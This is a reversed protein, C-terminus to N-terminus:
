FSKVAIITSSVTKKEAENWGMNKINMTKGDFYGANKDISNFPWSLIYKDSDKNVTMRYGYGCLVDRKIMYYVILTDKSAKVVDLYFEQYNKKNVGGPVYLTDKDEIYTTINYRGAIMSADSDIKQECSFLLVSLIFTSLYKM